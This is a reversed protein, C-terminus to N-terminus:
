EVVEVSEVYVSCRRAQKRLKSFADAANHAEIYSSYSYSAGSDPKWIIEYLKKKKFWCM